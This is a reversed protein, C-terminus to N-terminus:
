NVSRPTVGSSPLAEKHAQTTIVTPTTDLTSSVAIHTSLSFIELAFFFFLLTDLDPSEGPLCLLSESLVITEISKLKDRFSKIELRSPVRLENSYKKSNLTQCTNDLHRMQNRVSIRWDVGRRNGLRHWDISGM